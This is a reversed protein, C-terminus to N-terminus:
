GPCTSKFEKSSTPPMWTVRDGIGVYDPFILTGAGNESERTIPQMALELIQSATTTVVKELRSAGPGAM